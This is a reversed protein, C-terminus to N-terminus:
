GYEAEPRMPSISSKGMGSGSMQIAYTAPAVLRMLSPVAMRMTGWRLGTTVALARAVRSSMAPPSRTSSPIPTPQSASSNAVSPTGNSSRPGRVSSYTAAM